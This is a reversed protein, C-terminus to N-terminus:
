VHDLKISNCGELHIRTGRLRIRIGWRGSGLTGRHRGRPAGRIRRWLRSGGGPSALLVVVVARGRQRPGMGRAVSGCTLVIVIILHLCLSGVCM